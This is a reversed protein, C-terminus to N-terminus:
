DAVVAMLDSATQVWWPSNWLLQTAILWPLLLAIGILYASHPRGLRVVDYGVSPVLLLLMYAHVAGYGEPFTTPLWTIRTIAAGLLVVTALLMMRKHTERDRKRVLLAWTFFLAFYIISRLQTLLINSGQQIQGLEVREGYRWITIAVMAAWLCPAIAPSALGLRMHIVTRGTAVFLTQVFLLGLWAVMLAAHVHVILPPFRLEGALIAASRPAFGVIAVTAFLGATFVYIWKDIASHDRASGYIALEVAM